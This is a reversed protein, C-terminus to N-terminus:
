AGRVTWGRPDTLCGSFVAFLGAPAISASSASVSGGVTNSGDDIINGDVTSRRGGDISRGNARADMNGGDSSHASELEQDEGILKIIATTDAEQLALDHEFSPLASEPFTKLGITSDTKTRVMVMLSKLEKFTAAAHDSGTYAYGKAITM